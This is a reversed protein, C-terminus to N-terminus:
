EVTNSLEAGPKFKVVKKVNAGGQQTAGAQDTVPHLSGFDGFEVPKGAALATATSAVLASLAAEREDATLYPTDTYETGAYKGFIVENGNTSRSAEELDVNIDGVTEPDIGAGIDDVTEPDISELASTLESSPTFSIASGESLTDGAVAEAQGIPDFLGIGVMSVRNGEKLTKTTTDIFADLNGKVNAKTIDAESAIADILEGKNMAVAQNIPGAGGVVNTDGGSVGEGGDDSSEGPFYDDDGSGRRRSTYWVGGGLLVGAGVLGLLIPLLVGIGDDDTGSSEVSITREVTATTGNSDTVTVAVQQDGTSDFTHSISPGSGAPNGDITWEYSEVTITGDPDTADTEITLEYEEGVSIPTDTDGANIGKIWDQLDFGQDQDSDDDDSALEEVEIPVTVMAGEGDMVTVSVTHEGTSEFTHEFTEANSVIEGDITWEYSEISGDPDSADSAVRYSQDQTLNVPTSDNPTAVIPDGDCEPTCPVFEIQGVAPPATDTRIRVPRSDSYNSAAVVATHNGIDSETVAWELTLQRSEGASFEVERTDREVAGVSLTVTQNGPRIGSNGVTANIELTHAERDGITVPSNTGTIDVSCEGPGSCVNGESSVTLSATDENGSSDVVTVVVVYTGAETYTHTPQTLNEGEITTGDGFDWEYRAIEVKDSSEAADPQIEGGVAVSEPGTIRATPPTDDIVAFSNSTTNLSHEPVRFVLQYSGLADLVLDDFPARGEGDTRVSLTGFLESSADAALNVEVTVNSVPNDASDTVQVTPSGGIPNGIPTDQPETIVRISDASATDSDVQVTTAASDNDSSVTANYTSADAEGTTWTLDVTQTQGADLSVTARDTVSGDIALTVEQSADVGAENVVDASVTLENGEVVPSNTSLNEVTISGTRRQVTIDTSATDNASSVTVNYSDPNWDATDWSLDVTRSDEPELSVSTSDQVRGDIALDIEQSGADSGENTIEASVTLEDGEVVPSNTSLNAVTFPGATGEVVIDVGASDNDSSVTASHSGVDDATTDWTLDVTRTDGPELSVATSDTLRGDIALEIDQSMSTSGENTIEATVTVSEGAVVPSNTSVNQVALGSTTDQAGANGIGGAFALSFCLVGVALAVDRRSVARLHTRIWDKWNM